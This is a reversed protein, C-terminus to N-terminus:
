RDVAVYEAYYEAARWLASGSDVTREAHDFWDNFHYTVSDVTGDDDVDAELWDGPGGTSLDIRLVRKVSVGLPLESIREAAEEYSLTEDDYKPVTEGTGDCTVCEGSGACTECDAGTDNGTGACAGCDGSGACDECEVKDGGAIAFLAAYDAERGEM